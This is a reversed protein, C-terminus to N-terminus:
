KSCDNKKNSKINTIIAAIISIFSLTENIMGTYSSVFTDYSFMVANIALGIGRARMVNTQWFSITALTSALAPLFSYINTKSIFACAWNLLVFVLLWWNHSFIKKDRNLFVTERLCCVINAILGATAGLLLYHIGWIIDVALKVKLVNKMNKNHFLILSVVTGIIGLIQASLNITMVLVGKTNEM